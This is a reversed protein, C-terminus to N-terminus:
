KREMAQIAFERARDGRLYEALSLLGDELYRSDFGNLTLLMRAMIARDKHPCATVIIKGRDLENMRKPLENLPIHLGFGMRWVQAEERFRIDLLQAKGELLLAVLERSHTKMGAREKYDFRSLYDGLRGEEADARPIMLILLPLALLLWRRM